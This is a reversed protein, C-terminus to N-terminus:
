SAFSYQVAWSYPAFFGAIQGGAFHAVGVMAFCLGFMVMLDNITAPRAHDREYSEVAAIVKDISSSDARLFKDIKASHKAMVLIALLWLSVHTSDVLIMVGFLDDSGGLLEKMASENAAGGIWSGAFASFGPWLNDDNFMEPSIWKAIGLSIPG